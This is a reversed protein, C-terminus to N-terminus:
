QDTEEEVAIDIAARRACGPNEPFRDAMERGIRARAEIDGADDAKHWDDKLQAATRNM